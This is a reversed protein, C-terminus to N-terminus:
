YRYWRGRAHGPTFVEALADTEDATWTIVVVDARPLPDNPGPAPQLPEPAPALGQPFAITKRKGKRPLRRMATALQPAAEVPAPQDLGRSLLYRAIEKREPHQALM